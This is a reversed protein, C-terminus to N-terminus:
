CHGRGLPTLSVLWFSEMNDRHTVPVRNVSAISAYGSDGDVRSHERFAEFMEWGWRRYTEDGTIRWMYFLSEVTEPRQLNHADAPKVVFDEKWADTTAESLAEFSPGVPQADIPFDAMMRAPSDLNLHAIEPALGTATTKYMCWCTKMLERALVMEREFKPGWTSGSSAASLSHGRTAALAITGPMFCVLHDMKPSLVSHIGDPREGLVTFNNPHSYTILHDQVGTLAQDWM